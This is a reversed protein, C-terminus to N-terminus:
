YYMYVKLCLSSFSNDQIAIGVASFIIFQHLYVKYPINNQIFILIENAPTRFFDSSAGKEVVSSYM